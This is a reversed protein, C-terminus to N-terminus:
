HSAHEHRAEPSPHPFSPILGLFTLSFARACARCEWTGHQDSHPRLDEDGCFPCYLPFARDSV